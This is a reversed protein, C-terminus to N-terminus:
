PASLLLRLYRARGLKYIEVLRARLEPAQLAESQGLAEVRAGFASLDREVQRTEQDIQKLEEAKLLREIELRRLENLLTREESALRDAERQLVTLREGARRAMSETQARDPPPTQSSASTRDPLVGGLVCLVCLFLRCSNRSQTPQSPERMLAGQRLVRSCRGAM